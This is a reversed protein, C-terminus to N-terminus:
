EGMFRAPISFELRAGGPKLAGIELLTLSAKRVHLQESGPMGLLKAILVSFDPEHGVLMVSALKEYAKLEVLAAEPRMGSAVFGAVQMNGSGLEAAFHEATQRARVLPSSLILEPALEHSLCFQGVRKAQEAVAFKNVM